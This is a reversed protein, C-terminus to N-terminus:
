PRTFPMSTHTCAEEIIPHVLSPNSPIIGKIQSLAPRATHLSIGYLAYWALRRGRTDLRLVYVAAVDIGSKHHLLLPALYAQHPFGEWTIM